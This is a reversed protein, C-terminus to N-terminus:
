RIGSLPRTPEEHGDCGRKKFGGHDPDAQGKSAASDHRPYGPRAQRPSRAAGRYNVVFAGRMAAFAGRMAAAPDHDFASLQGTM